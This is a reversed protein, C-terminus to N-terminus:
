PTARNDTPTGSRITWTGTQDFTYAFQFGTPTLNVAAVSPSSVTGNPATITVAMPLDFGSGAITMVQPAGISVSAPAITTISPAPATGTITVSEPARRGM